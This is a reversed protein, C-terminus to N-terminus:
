CSHGLPLYIEFTTGRGVESAVNIAGEHAAVIGHIVSLGLGTGEGVSKTTFFPDFVRTLTDQDMGPGTDSVILKAYSGPKLTPLGASQQDSMDVQELSIEFTGGKLGMAHGANSGLNMLIRHIQTADALVPEIAEDLNQRIEIMAPLSARLLSLAEKIVGPLGTPQLKAEEQRSFTLIQKVLDSGREAARIVNELNTRTRSDEPMDEMVLETLGLIPVLTNNLDHAIGEALSGLSDMKEAQRIQDELHKRHTIDYFGGLVAEEGQYEVVQLSHITSIPSGDAKRMEIENDRVYGDRDLGALREERGSADKYFDTISRGISEDAQLGLAPGVRPNAYLIKGDSRRTIVLPVPSAETIVRFRKESKRLAQESKRRLRLEHQLDTRFQELSEILAFTGRSAAAFGLAISGIGLIAVLWQHNMHLDDMLAMAKAMPMFLPFVHMTLLDALYFLGVFSLGIIIGVFGYRTRPTTLHTRIRAFISLAYSIVGLILIDAVTM